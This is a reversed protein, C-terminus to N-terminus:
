FGGNTTMLTIIQYQLTQVGAVIDNHVMHEIMEDSVGPYESRFKNRSDEVFPSLHALSISQGGLQSSAVQAIIQTAINCATSFKHPKDIKTKSIVTGNQLMDELNVLDCNGTVIGGELTFSRTVPEEVCWVPYLGEENDEIDVVTWNDGAPQSKIFRFSFKTVGEATKQQVEELIHYGSIASIDRIMQALAEIHTYITGASDASAAYLGAFIAMLASDDYTKYQNLVTKKVAQMPNELFVYGDGSNTDSAIFGAEKFMGIYRSEKESLVIATGEDTGINYDFGKGLVYGKCFANAEYSVHRNQQKLLTLKDGVKLETAVTGDALIWRHNPTCHVTKQVGQSEFTVTQLHQEGYFKVTAVRWDGNMDLVNVKTGDGCEAFTKIGTDTVFKTDGSFCNHIPQLTYDMDHIHIIGQEHAEIVDKPFIRRKCIDTSVAGAIYDRQTTVLYADKNSNETLWYESKNGVIEDVVQDITNKRANDREKRYLIYNKAVSKDKLAMLGHEVYDQIQEVSLESQPIENEVYQAINEAKKKAYESIDGYTALFAKLVANVIKNRDFPVKRGDRKIVTIM